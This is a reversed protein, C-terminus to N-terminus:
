RTVLPVYAPLEGTLHRALLRTETELVRRYSVRYELVPHVIEQGLRRELALVFKRRGDPSLTTSGMRELFDRPGIEGNNVVTICVSDVILPRFPEMLDLALAPRGYRLAHLYGLYPDLGVSWAVQALERALISYGFSLLANIRDRPPRRSRGEFSFGTLLSPDGKLMHRFSEFYVRTGAGEHGLLEEISQARLASRAAHRIAALTNREVAAAANRRLLTRMNLLKARVLHRAIALARAPDAAAAYQSQRLAVNKHPLGHTIGYLWGGASLYVIPIARRCLEHVLATSVQANGFVVL